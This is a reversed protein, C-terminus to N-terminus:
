SPYEDIPFASKCNHWTEAIAIKRYYSWLSSHYWFRQFMECAFYAKYLFTPSQGLRVLPSFLHM